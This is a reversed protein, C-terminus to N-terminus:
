ASTAPLHGPVPLTLPRAPDTPHPKSHAAAALALLHEVLAPEDELGLAPVFLALLTAQDPLRQNHELHSIHPTSYGGAIALEAQTLQARRRLYKLMEGFTAFASQDVPRLRAM